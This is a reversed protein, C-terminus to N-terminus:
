SEAVTETGPPAAAGVRLPVNQRILEGAQNCIADGHLREWDSKWLQSAQYAEDYFGISRAQRHHQQLRELGRFLALGQEYLMSREAMRMGDTQFRAFYREHAPVERLVGAAATILWRALDWRGTRTVEDLFADLVQQQTTSLLRVFAPDASQRKAREIQVWRDALLPAITETLWAGEDRVWPMFDIEGTIRQEARTEPFLLAILAHDRFGPQTLLTGVGLTHNLVLMAQLRLVRDGLTFRAPKLKPSAQPDAFNDSTLWILWQLTQGSFALTRVERPCREWLRGAVIAYGRQTRQPQWGLRALRETMGVALTNEVLAVCDRSLCKPAPVRRVLLPLAEALSLRGVLARTIRILSSEFLSVTRPMTPPFRPDFISFPPYLM